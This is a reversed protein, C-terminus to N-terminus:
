LFVCRYSCHDYSSGPLVEGDATMAVHQDAQSFGSAGLLLKVIKHQGEIATPKRNEVEGHRYYRHELAVADTHSRYKGARRINRERVFRELQLDREAPESKVRPHRQWGKQRPLHARISRRQHCHGIFDERTSLGLSYSQHLAANGSPAGILLCQLRRSCYTGRSGRDHSQELLVKPDLHCIEVRVEFHVGLLLCSIKLGVFIALPCRVVKGIVVGSCGFSLLSNSAARPDNTCFSTMTSRTLYLVRQFFLPLSNCARISCSRSLSPM